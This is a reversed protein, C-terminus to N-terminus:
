MGSQSCCFCNAEDTIMQDSWEMSYVKEDKYHHHAKKNFLRFKVKQNNISKGSLIVSRLRAFWPSSIIGGLSVGKQNLIIEHSMSGFLQHFWHYLQSRTLLIVSKTAGDVLMCWISKTVRSISEIWDRSLSESDIPIEFLCNSQTISAMLYTINSSHMRRIQCWGATIAEKAGFAFSGELLSPSPCQKMTSLSFLLGYLSIEGFPVLCLVSNNNRNSIITVFWASSM